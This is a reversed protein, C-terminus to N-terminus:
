ENNEPKLPKKYNLIYNIGDGFGVTYIIANQKNKANDTFKMCEKTMDEESPVDFFANEVATILQQMDLIKQKAIEIERPFLGSIKLLDKYGHEYEQLIDIIQEKANMSIM